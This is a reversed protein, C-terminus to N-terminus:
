VGWQRRGADALSEGGWALGPWARMIREDVNSKAAKPRQTETRDLM